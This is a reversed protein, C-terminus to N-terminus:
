KASLANLGAFITELMTQRTADSLGADNMMGTASGYRGDTAQKIIEQIKEAPHNALLERMKGNVQALTVAPEGTDTSATGSTGTTSVDTHTAPAPTPEATPAAPAKTAEMEAKTRRSRKPAEESPAAETPRVTSEEDNVPEVPLAERDDLTRSVCALLRRDAYEDTNLEITIRAV